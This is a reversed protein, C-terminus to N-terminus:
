PWSLLLVTRPLRLLCEPCAPPRWRETPDEGYYLICGVHAVGQRLQERFRGRPLPHDVEEAGHGPQRRNRLREVDQADGGDDARDAHDVEPEEAERETVLVHALHDAPQQRPRPHGQGHVQHGAQEEDERPGDAVDVVGDDAELEGAEDRRHRQGEGDPPHVPPLMAVPLPRRRPQPRRARDGHDGEAGPDAHHEGAAPDRVGLVDGVREVQREGPFFEGGIRRDPLPDLVM